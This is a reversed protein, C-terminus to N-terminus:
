PIPIFVRMASPLGSPTEAATPLTIGGQKRWLAYDNTGENKAGSWPNLSNALGEHPLAQHDPPLEILQGEANEREIKLMKSIAESQSKQRLVDGYYSRRLFAHVEIGFHTALKQALSLQPKAEAENKFSSDTQSIGTRCAYSYLCGNIAFSKKNVSSYNSLDFDIKQGKWFNLSISGVVGHSFFAVDLLKFNERDRNMLSIIDASTSLKVVEFGKVARLNDLTLKEFKTYDNDVYALTNKTAPRLKKAMVYAASVFMMKLWFSNYYMESGIFIINETKPVSILVEKRKKNDIPSTISSGIKKYKAKTM